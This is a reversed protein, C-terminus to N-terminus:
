FLSKAADLTAQGLLPIALYGLPSVFLAAITILVGETTSRMPVFRVDSPEDVHRRPDGFTPRVIICDIICGIDDMMSSPSIRGVGM